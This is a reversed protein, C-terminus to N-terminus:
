KEAEATELRSVLLSPWHVFWYDEERDSNQQKEDAQGGIGEPDTLSGGNAPLLHGTNHDSEDDSTDAGSLQFLLFGLRGDDPIRRGSKLVM